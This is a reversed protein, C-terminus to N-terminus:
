LLIANRYRDRVSRRNGAKNDNDAREGNNIALPVRLKDRLSTRAQIVYSLRKWSPNWLNRIYSFQTTVNRRPRQAGDNVSAFACAGMCVRGHVRLRVRLRLYRVRLRVLAHARARVCVWVCRLYM